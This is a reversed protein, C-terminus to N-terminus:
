FFIIVPHVTAPTERVTMAIHFGKKKNDINADLAPLHAGRWHIIV